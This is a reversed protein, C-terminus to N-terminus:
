FVKKGAGLFISWIEAGYWYKLKFKPYNIFGFPPFHGFIYIFYITGM